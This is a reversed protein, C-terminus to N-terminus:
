MVLRQGKDENVKDVSDIVYVRNFRNACLYDDRGKQLMRYVDPATIERPNGDTQREIWRKRNAVTTFAFAQEKGNVDKVAYFNRGSVKDHQPKRSM